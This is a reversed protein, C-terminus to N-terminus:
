YTPTPSPNANIQDQIKSWLHNARAQVRSLVSVSYNPHKMRVWGAITNAQRQSTAITQLKPNRDKGLETACVVWDGQSLLDYNVTAHLLEEADFGLEEIRSLTRDTVGYRALSIAVKHTRGNRKSGIKVMKETLAPNDALLDWNLTADFVDTLTVRHDTGYWWKDYTDTLPNPETITQEAQLAAIEKGLKQRQALTAADYRSMWDSQQKAFVADYRALETTRRYQTIPLRKLSALHEELRAINSTNDTRKKNAQMTALAIGPQVYPNRSVANCQAWNLRHALMGDNDRLPELPPFVPVPKAQKRVVCFSAGRLALGRIRGYEAKRLRIKLPAYQTYSTDKRGTFVVLQNVLM